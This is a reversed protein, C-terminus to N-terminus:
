LPAHDAAGGREGQQQGGWGHGARRIKGVIRLRGVETM